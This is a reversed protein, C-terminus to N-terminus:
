CRPAAAMDAAVGARFRPGLAATLALEYGPAASLVDALATAGGPAGANARLFQNVKALEAGVRASERRAKEAANDLDRRAKRAAEAAAEGASRRAAAAGASAAREAVLATAAERREELEALERELRTKYDEALQELETQLAAIREAAGDDGIDAEAEAQLRSISARRRAAREALEAVVRSAADLRM